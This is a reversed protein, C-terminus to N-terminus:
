NIQYLLVVAALVAYVIKMLGNIYADILKASQANAMYLM